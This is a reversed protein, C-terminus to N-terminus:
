KKIMWKLIIRGDIGKYELHDRLNEWWFGVICRKEEEHTDCASNIENKRIKDWLIQHPSCIIFRRM